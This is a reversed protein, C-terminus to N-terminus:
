MDYVIKYPENMDRNDFCGFIYKGLSFPDSNKDVLYLDGVLDMSQEESSSTQSFSSTAKTTWNMIGM